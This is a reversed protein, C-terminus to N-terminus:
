RSQRKAHLDILYTVIIKFEDIHAGM